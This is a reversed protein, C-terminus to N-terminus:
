QASVSRYSRKHTGPIGRKHKKYTLCLFGTFTRFYDSFNICKEIGFMKEAATFFDM